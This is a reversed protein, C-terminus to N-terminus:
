SGGPAVLPIYHQGIIEQGESSQLWGILLRYDGEPEELGIVFITSRLPYLNNYINDPTPYVGDVAM